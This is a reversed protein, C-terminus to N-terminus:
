PHPKRSDQAELEEFSGAEALRTQLLDDARAGWVEFESMIEVVSRYALVLRDTVDRVPRASSSTTKMAAIMNETSPIAKSAAAGANVINTLFEDATKEEEVSLQGSEIRSLMWLLGGQVRHIRASLQDVLAETRVALPELNRAYRIAVAALARNEVPHPTGPETSILIATTQKASWDL